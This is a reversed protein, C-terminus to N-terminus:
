IGTYLLLAFRFVQTHTYTLTITHTHTEAPTQTHTHSVVPDAEKGRIEESVGACEAAQKPVSTLSVTHGAPPLLAVHSDCTHTHTVAAPQGTQPSRQSNVSRVETQSGSLAVGEFFPRCVCM